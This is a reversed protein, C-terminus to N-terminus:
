QDDAVDDHGVHVTDLGGNADPTKEGVAFDQQKGPLCGGRIQQLAGAGAPVLELDQSLRNMGLVQQGLQPASRWGSVLLLFVPSTQGTRKALGCATVHWTALTPRM